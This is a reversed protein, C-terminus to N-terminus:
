QKAHRRVFQNQQWFTMPVGFLYFLLTIKMFVNNTLDLTNIWYLAHSNQTHEVLNLHPFYYSLIMAASFLVLELGGSFRGLLLKGTHVQVLFVNTAATCRLFLIFLYITHTLDFRVAFATLMFIFYATDFFHDLYAGYESTQHTLRAHIGDLADLIYWIFNFVTWLIFAEPGPVVFLLICAIISSFFAMVTITNPKVSRPIFHAVKGLLFYTLRYVYDKYDDPMVSGEHAM